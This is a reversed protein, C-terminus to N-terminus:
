KLVLSGRGGLQRYTMTQLPSSLPLLPPPSPLLPFSTSASTFPTLYSLLFPLLLSPLLPPLCFTLEDAVVVTGGGSREREEWEWDWSCRPDQRATSHETIFGLANHIGGGRDLKCWGTMMWMILTGLGEGNEKECGRRFTFWLVFLAPPRPVLSHFSAIYLIDRETIQTLLTRAEYTELFWFQKLWRHWKKTWFIPGHMCLKEYM